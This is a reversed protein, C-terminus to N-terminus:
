SSTATTPASRAPSRRAARSRRTASSRTSGAAGSRRSSSRGTSRGAPRQVDVLRRRRALRGRHARLETRAVARDTESADDAFLRRLEARSATVDAPRRGAAPQAGRRRGPRRRAARGDLAEDARALLDAKRDADRVDRVAFAELERRLELARDVAARSRTSASTSAARARAVGPRPARRAAPAARHHRAALRRRAARPRPVHVAPGQGAHDAVALAQGDRRGDPEQRRRLPLARRGPPPRAREREQPEAPVAARGARGRAPPRLGDVRRRRELADWAELLRAALYRCAAVLFAGSGMAIDAVKLDLLEAPPSCGGTPPTPAGRGARARLRRTSRTSSSRRPSRARRTTPARALPPRAGPHRVAVRRPLGRPDGRLDDGSCGTSRCRRPRAARRRQRLRRAPAGADRRRREADLAKRIAKASRGTEKALREDLM